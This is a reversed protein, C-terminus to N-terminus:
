SLDKKLEEAVKLGSIAAGEISGHVLNDGSIYYKNDISMNYKQDFYQVPQNVTAQEINFNKLFNFKGGYINKLRNKIHNIM